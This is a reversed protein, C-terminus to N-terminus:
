GGLCRIQVRRDKLLWDAVTLQLFQDVSLRSVSLGDQIIHLNECEFILFGFEIKMALRVLLAVEPGACPRSM